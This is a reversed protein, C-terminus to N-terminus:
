KQEQASQLADYAWILLDVSVFGTTGNPMKLDAKVGRAAEVLANKAKATETLSAPTSNLAARAMKKMQITLCAANEWMPDPRTAASAIDELVERTREAWEELEAIRQQAAALESELDKIRQAHRITADLTASDPMSM